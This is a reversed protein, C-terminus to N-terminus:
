ENFIMEAWDRTEVPRLFQGFYGGDRWLEVHLHADATDSELSLPSGSNGVAGIVQGQTVTMGDALGPAVRSLHVYRSVLGGGHEVWVQRGRYVDLAEVSTYGLQRSQERWFTFQNAAPPQYDATVRIVVGNAIAHVATGTQWYLDMGQHLGLRYHRPAGPMQLERQTLPSGPIPLALPAFPRWTQWDHPQLGSLTMGGDVLTLREPELYIFLRDRGAAIIREGDVWFTSVTEPMQWVQQLQGSDADFRQLRRGDMDLAWVVGAAARIQRPQFIPKEPAFSDVVATERYKKLMGGHDALNQMLVWVEGNAAAVDVARGDPLNWLIERGGGWELTYGYNTELLYRGHAAVFYHGSTDRVLRDYRAVSWVTTEPNFQYVDGARDLALLSDGIWSLDILELVRVGAVEAGSQLLDVPPSPQTLDFALVRGADLLFLTNGARELAIPHIFSNAPFQWLGTNTMELRVPSSDALSVIEAIEPNAFTPLVVTATATPQSTPVATPLNPPPLTIPLSTPPLLTPSQGSTPLVATPPVEISACAALGLWVVLGTIIKVLRGM